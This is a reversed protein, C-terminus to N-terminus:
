ELGMAGAPPIEIGTTRTLRLKPLFRPELMFNVGVNDKARDVNFGVTMLMSEGIRTISMTQGINGTQEFDYAASATTLWKESLRYSYSGLLVNSTVPGNISRLGVYANGLTPRNILVGGSITKLGDGFVDAFGDSVISFRDGLHWRLDYDLLGANAGFNDRRADPFYAANMDLTLWDVIHQNGALGRKTQWRQRVGMRVAMLDEVVEPTPNTVWSGIGQRIAFRRPDFKADTITPDLGGSLLRRRFELISIDDLQDYLPLEDFNQSADAYSADVEFVVKHALGNLNFLPDRVDPYVAWFPISGRVGANVYARDLSDGDMAEGAHYFQGLAYPVIKAAGVQLPLDFEHTTFLREGDVDGDWPLPTFQSALTPEFPRTAAEYDAYSVSSHEFWAVRDGLLPEGLWYHDLRPLYQTESFFDNVQANAEVMWERNNDIKRGRVGTRPDKLEDWEQEYYQELFTRDSIWGSEATVEWGNELHQRHQGFLRFRFDEEPDITRRGRGLNDLGNDHIGWFDIIGRAPGVVGLAEPRDYEFDTGLGFGRESLYDTSLGWDTGEIGQRGLLQWVDWDVMAQQGFISDSGVRVSDIIFSPKQLDTAITPWYFVPVGQVHVVNGQAEALQQRQVVPTGDPNLLPAGSIPDVVPQEVDSFLIQNSSFDYTPEELRSTTVLAGQAAFHSADLQRIAAAKVRVVGAYDWQKALPAILEANLIVGIQRRVDYFMREAYVVRDGQRFEINGEMYIELPQDQPQMNTTGAASSWVVARDTSIDLVGIPGLQATLDPAQLGEVILRVGGTALAIRQGNVAPLYEVNPASDSRGFVNFRVMGPPLEQGGSPSPAFDTFQALLLQRRRQPNFQELGRQYIAPRESASSAEPVHWRLPASTELRQFWTSGRQQGLVGQQAADATRRRFDVVVSQRDVGELYAIVKTPGGDLPRSEIWLVAEPGRAYTLGQNLYCNGRLHWVDYVGERWRTAADAAITIPESINQKAGQIDDGRACTAYVAVIM